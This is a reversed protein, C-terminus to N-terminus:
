EELSGVCIHSKGITVAVAAKAAPVQTPVAPLSLRGRVCEIARSLAQANGSQVAADAVSCAATTDRIRLRLREARKRLAVGESWMSRYLDALLADSQAKVCAVLRAEEAKVRQVAARWAASHEAVREEVAPLAATLSAVAAGCKVRSATLTRVLPAVAAGCKFTRVCHQKGVHVAEHHACLPTDNCAPPGTCICTALVADGGAECPKCYTASRCAM